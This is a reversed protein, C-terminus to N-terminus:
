RRLHRFGLGHWQVGELRSVAGPRWVHVRRPPGSGSGLPQGNADLGVGNGACAALLATSLPAVLRAGSVYTM